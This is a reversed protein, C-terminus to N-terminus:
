SVCPKTLWNGRQSQKQTQSLPNQDPIKHSKSSCSLLRSVRYLDPLDFPAPDRVRTVRGWKLGQNSGEAGARRHWNGLGTPWFNHWKWVRWKTTRLYARWSGVDYLTQGPRWLKVSLTDLLRLRGEHFVLSVPEIFDCCNESRSTKRGM